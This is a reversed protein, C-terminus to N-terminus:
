QRVDSDKAAEDFIAGTEQQLFTFLDNLCRFGQRKGALTNELSARWVVQPRRHNSAEDYERWLRLLYSLYDPRETSM